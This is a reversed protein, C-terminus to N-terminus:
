KIGHKLNYDANLKNIIIDQYTNKDKLEEILKSQQKIKDNLSAIKIEVSQFKSVTVFIFVLVGLFAVIINTDEMM